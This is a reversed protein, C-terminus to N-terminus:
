ICPSIRNRNKFKTNTDTLLKKNIEVFETDAITMDIVKRGNKTIIDFEYVLNRVSNYCKNSSYIKNVKAFIKKDVLKYEGEYAVDDKSGHYLFFTGDALMTLEIRVEKNVNDKYTAILHSNSAAYYKKISDYKVNSPILLLGEKADSIQNDIFKSESTEVRNEKISERDIENTYEVKQNAYVVFGMWLFSLVISAVLVYFMKQIM